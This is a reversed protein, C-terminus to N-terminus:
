AQSKRSRFTSIFGRIGASVDGIGIRVRRTGIGADHSAARIGEQSKRLGDSGADSGYFDFCWIQSEQSEWKKLGLDVAVAYRSDAVNQKPQKPGSGGVSPKSM